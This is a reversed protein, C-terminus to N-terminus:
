AQVIRRIDAISLAEIDADLPYSEPGPHVVFLRELKLNKLTERMSRTTSPAESFKFEVGLRRGEHLLFLDLEAGSQTAWFYAGEDGTLRLVQELGFGEWSPGAKPHGMLTDRDPVQLLAHLLGSDRVYIKPRKVQRKGLNEHWPQLQRILFAGTLIDTHRKVTIYSEGLSRGIESANFVGAHSHAHMQWLRRLAVPAINIGLARVDRELFTRIFNDQWVRSDGDAAALFSPPFGGRWWLRRWAEQGAESLDFGSMFIFEVRGALSESCGKVIDPSASGLILFRAPLPDRDALVRLDSFLEPRLQIEDLIITGKLAGLALLPNALKNLDIRNELDFFAAPSM